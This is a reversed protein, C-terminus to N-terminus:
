GYLDEVKLIRRKLLSVVLHRTADFMHDGPSPYYWGIKQLMTRTIVKRQVPIQPIFEGKYKIAFWQVVDITGAQVLQKDPLHHMRPLTVGEVVLHLELKSKHAYKCWDEVIMLMGLTPGEHCEIGTGKYKIAIGSVDGPDCAVWIDSMM